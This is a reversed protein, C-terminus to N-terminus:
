DQNKVGVSKTAIVDVGTGAANKVIVDGSKVPASARAAHIEEMIEFIKGKPVDRETKVSVRPIEGKDVVVTSTVTRTPATVEKKGYAAGRPCANGEVTVREGDITVSLACGM